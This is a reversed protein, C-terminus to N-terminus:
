KQVQGYNVKPLDIIHGYQGKYTLDLNKRSVEQKGLLFFEPENSSLPDQLPDHLEQKNGVPHALRATIIIVLDSEKKQFSSSRFLAGVVPIDGLWPVQSATKANVSQLLGAIAFSQGDRLEVSTDARRVTLAPLQVGNNSVRISNAVDIESVEPQVQLNIVGDDLVIPTFELKVGFTKFQVTVKGDADSVPVPFEGGALFSAKQGSLATLNPEALRRALRKQELASILVDANVGKSLVNALLSGFPLSSSLAGLGVSLPSGGIGSGTGAQVGKGDLGWSIGLDKGATRSVEVFRVELNVQQNASVSMSDTVDTGAFDRAIGMAKQAAPASPVVGELLVRGNLSRIKIKANPMAGQLAARMGELNHTVEIDIVAVLKKNEDFLTVSTTGLKKGLVYLTKNTLANVDATEPDGVMIESFPMNVRISESSGMVVALHGVREGASLKVVRAGAEATNVTTLPGSVMVMGVALAAACLNKFKQQYFM